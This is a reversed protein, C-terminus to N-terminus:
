GGHSVATPLPITDKSKSSATVPQQGFPLSAVRDRYRTGRAILALGLRRSPVFVSGSRGVPRPPSNRPRWVLKRLFEPSAMSIEPCEKWACETVVCLSITGDLSQHDSRAHRRAPAVPEHCVGSFGGSVLSSLLRNLPLPIAGGECVAGSGIERWGVGRPADETPPFISSGGV